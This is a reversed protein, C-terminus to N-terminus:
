LKAAANKFGIQKLLNQLAPKYTEGSERTMIWKAANEIEREAPNLALLDSLHASRRESELAAYLKFHIQDYRGLFHITLNGGFQQTIVRELVGEPFGFDFVAAARVNIWGESLGFDKQVRRAAKLISDDLVAPRDIHKSGEKIM